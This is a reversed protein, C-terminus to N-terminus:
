LAVKYAATDCKLLFPVLMLKRENDEEVRCMRQIWKKVQSNKVQSDRSNM